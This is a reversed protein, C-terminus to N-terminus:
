TTAHAYSRLTDIFCHVNDIPTDPLIGHGLNMIFGPDNRMSDVLKRVASEIASRSDKLLHPSLNGQVAINAPVQPRMESLERSWDFSIARPKISVLDKVRVCSGRCFIIIPIGTDELADVIKKLYPLSFELFQTYPLLNAWSDFIQIADAGAEIQLRLYEISADTIKQLLTHFSNHHLYFWESSEENLMYHAITFPGGCFGIIPVKLEPKLLKITEAACTPISQVHLDNVQLHNIVPEVFPGGSDPYHVKLGLAEAILLIDSFVIAADFDFHEFPMMTVKAALEPTSFLEMLTHKERLSRYSPLYRGAQRMIWVPPIDLNKCNLANIFKM